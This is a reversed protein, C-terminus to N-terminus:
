LVCPSLDSLPCSATHGQTIAAGRPNLKWVQHGALPSALWDGGLAGGEWSTLLPRHTWMASAGEQGGTTAGLIRGVACAERDM